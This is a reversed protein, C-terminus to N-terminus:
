YLNKNKQNFYSLPDESETTKMQSVPIDKQKVSDQSIYKEILELYEPCPNKCPYDSCDKCFQKLDPKPVNRSENECVDIINYPTNYIREYARHFAMKVADYTMNNDVQPAIQKFGQGQKWLQWIKLQTWAEKSSRTKDPTWGEDIYRFHRKQERDIFVSIDALIDKKRRRMDLKVLREFPLEINQSEQLIITGNRELQIVDGESKMGINIISQEFLNPLLEIAKQSLQTVDTEPDLMTFIEGESLHFFPAPFSPPKIGFAPCHQWLYDAMEHQPGEHAPYFFFSPNEISQGKLLKKKQKQLLKKAPKLITEKATEYVEKYFRNVKLFALKQKSREQMIEETSKKM